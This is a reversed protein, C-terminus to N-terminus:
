PSSTTTTTTTTTTKLATKRARRAHELEKIKEYVWDQKWHSCVEGETTEFIVANVCPPNKKQMRYGIIPATIPNLSIVKCCDSTKTEAAAAAVLLVGVLFAQCALRRICLQM